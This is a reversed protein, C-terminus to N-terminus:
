RRAHGTTRRWRPQRSGRRPKAWRAGVPVLADRAFRELLARAVQLEEADTVANAKAAERELVERYYQQRQTPVLAYAEDLEAITLAQWDELPRYAVEEIDPVIQEPM